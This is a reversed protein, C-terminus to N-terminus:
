LMLNFFPVFRSVAAWASEMGMPLSLAAPVLCQVIHPNDVINSNLSRVAEKVSQELRPKLGPVFDANSPISLWRPSYAAFPISCCCTQYVALFVHKIGLFCTLILEREFSRILQRLSEVFM